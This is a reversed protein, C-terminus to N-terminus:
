SMSCISEHALEVHFFQRYKRFASVIFGMVNVGGNPAWNVKVSNTSSTFIMNKSAGTVRFWTYKRDDGLWNGHHCKPSGQFM